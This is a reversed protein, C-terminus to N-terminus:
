CTATGIKAYTLYIFYLVKRRDREGPLLHNHAIRCLLTASASVHITRSLASACQQRNWPTFRQAMRLLSEAHNKRLSKAFSHPASFDRAAHPDPQTRTHPHTPTVRHFFAEDLHIRDFLNSEGVNRRLQRALGSKQSHQIQQLHRLVPAPIINIQNSKVIQWRAPLSRLLLTLNSDSRAPCVLVTSERIRISKQRLYHTLRLHVSPHKRSDSKAYLLGADRM